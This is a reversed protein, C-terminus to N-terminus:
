QLVLLISSRERKKLHSIMNGTRPLILKYYCVFRVATGVSNLNKRKKKPPKDYKWNKALHAFCVSDMGGAGLGNGFIVPELNNFDKGKYYQQFDRLVTFSRYNRGIGKKNSVSNVGTKGREDNIGINHTHAEKNNGRSERNVGLYNNTSENFTIVVKM